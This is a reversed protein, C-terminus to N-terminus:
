RQFTESELDPCLDDRVAAALHISISRVAEAEFYRIWVHCLGVLNRGQIEGRETSVAEGAKLNMRYAQWVDEDILGLTFPTECCQTRYVQGQERGTAGSGSQLGMRSALRIIDETLFRRRLPGPLPRARM